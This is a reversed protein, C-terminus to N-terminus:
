STPTLQVTGDNVPQSLMTLASRRLYREISLTPVNKREWSPHGLTLRIGMRSSNPDVRWLANILDAPEAVWDFEPVPLVRIKGPQRWQMLTALSVGRTM